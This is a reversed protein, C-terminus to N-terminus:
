DNNKKLCAIFDDLPVPKSFYYGQYWTCGLDRLRDRIEAPELLHSGHFGFAWLVHLLVAYGYSMSLTVVLLISFIGFTGKYITNLLCGIWALGGNTIMESYDYLPLNRLAHAVGGVLILPIMLMLGRRIVTFFFSEEIRYSIQMLKEKAKM